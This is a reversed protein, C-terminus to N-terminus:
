RSYRGEWRSRRNRGLLTLILWLVSFVFWSPALLITQIVPDWLIPHVYNKITDQSANLTTPSINFWDLGLPTMVLTSDAISRTIDLVATILSTALAFLALIRLIPKLM